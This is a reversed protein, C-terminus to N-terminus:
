KFLHHTQELHYRAGTAGHDRFYRGSRIWQGLDLVTRSWHNRQLLLFPEYVRLFHSVCKVFRLSTRDPMKCLAFSFCRYWIWRCFLWQLSFLAMLLLYWTWGFLWTEM